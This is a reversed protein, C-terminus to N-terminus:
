DIPLRGFDNRWSGFSRSAVDDPTGLAIVEFRRNKVDRFRDAYRDSLCVIATRHGRAALADALEVTHREMGGWGTPDILLSIGLPSRSSQTMSGSRLWM